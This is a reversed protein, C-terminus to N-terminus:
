ANDLEEAMTISNKFATEASELSKRFPAIKIEYEDMVSQYDLIAQTVFSGKKFVNKLSDSSVEFTTSLSPINISIKDNFSLYSPYITYKHKGVTVTAWLETNEGHTEIGCKELYMALGHVEDRAKNFSVAESLPRYQRDQELRHM